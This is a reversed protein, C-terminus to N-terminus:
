RKTCSHVTQIKLFPPFCLPCRSWHSCYSVSHSLFSTEMIYHYYYWSTSFCFLFIKCLKRSSANFLRQLENQWLANVVGTFLSFIVFFTCCHVIQSARTPQTNHSCVLLPPLFIATRDIIRVSSVYQLVTWLTCTYFPCHLVSFVCATRIQIRLQVPLYYNMPITIFYNYYSISTIVDTQREHPWM